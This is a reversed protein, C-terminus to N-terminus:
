NIQDEAIKYVPKHENSPKSGHLYLSVVDQRGRKVEPRREQHRDQSADGGKATGALHPPESKYDWCKPLGLRIPDGSTLLELGAQDVYHFRRAVLFIFILQTHHCTGTTGAVPVSLYSFQKLRHDWSSLLSLCSSGKVRPPLLQLSSLDHWQVGAQTLSCSETEEM